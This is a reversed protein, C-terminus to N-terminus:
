AEAEAAPVFRALTRAEKGLAGHLDALAAPPRLIELVALGHAWNVPRGLALQFPACPVALGAILAFARSRAVEGIFHLTLHLKETRVRRASRPWRWDDAHRALAGRLRTDPWLALFLRDTPAPADPPSVRM